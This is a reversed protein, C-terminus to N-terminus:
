AACVCVSVCARVCLVLCCFRSIFFLIREANVSSFCVFLFPCFSFIFTQPLGPGRPEDMSVIQGGSCHLLFAAVTLRLLEVPVQHLQVLSPDPQRRLEM